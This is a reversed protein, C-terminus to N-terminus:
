VQPPLPDHSLILTPGCHALQVHYYNLLLKIFIDKSSVIIPHNQAPTLSSRSLRGGVHLLRDPGLYPHLVLMSSTLPIPKPPSAKLQKLESPFTRAQSNKQLLLDAAEIDEVSLQDGRVTPHGRITSLFNHAFRIIWATVHTLTRLSSYRHELWTAPSAVLANVVMPKCELDQLSSLDAQNPQKPVKVPQHHLWSPGTWWLDHAQLESPTLGRSACDAPNEATPVHRWAGPPILSIINAIRNAVYTRYRKPSGDLWALVITRDCWAHVADLPLDLTEKTTSLIKALLSAGCLELRPITVPKVPAVKTKSLVLQCTPPKNAYTARVYVVASYAAQSADSFGHLEVTLARDKRFYCRPLSVTALM